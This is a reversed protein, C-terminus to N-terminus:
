EEGKKKNDDDKPKVYRQEVKNVNLLLDQIKDVLINDKIRQLVNNKKWLDKLKDLEMNLNKAYEKIKEDIEEESVKINEKEAVKFIVLASKIQFEARSKMNEILGKKDPLKDLIAEGYTQKYNEIMMQAINEAEKNVLSEPVDFPNEELIKNIIKEILLNRARQKKHEYLKKKIDARLDELTEFNESVEKAFDDNIDPLTKKKIEKLTVRYTVNKGALKKDRHEDPYKVIFEKTEGKKMGKIADNFDRNFDNNDLIFEFDKSEEEEGDIIEVMDINIMDLSEASEDEQKPSYTAFQNRLIELERDIESDVVEEIEEVFEFDKYKQIDCEPYVDFIVNFSISRDDEFKFDKVTPMNLPAIGKEQVAEKIANNIVNELTESMIKNHYYKKVFDVPAKGKRFGPIKAEKRVRELRNDYAEDFKNSPIQISLKKRSQKLDEVDIKM